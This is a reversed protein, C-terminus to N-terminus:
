RAAEFTAAPAPGHLPLRCLVQTGAGPSSRLRVQGGAAASREHLNRLGAGGAATSPDFGMGDDVVAFVVEAVEVRVTVLVRRAGAHGVANQVAEHCCFYVAAEVVAPLRGTRCDVEVAVGTCRAPVAFAELAAALGARTLAAPAQGAALRRLESCTRALGNRLAACRDGCEPAAASTEARQLAEIQVLLAVLEQQAGDHLNRELRRREADQARVAQQRSARLEAGLATAPALRRGPRGHALLGTIRRAPQLALVVVALAATTSWAGGPALRDTVRLVVASGCAVTATPLVSLLTHRLVLGCDCGRDASLSRHGGSGDAHAV